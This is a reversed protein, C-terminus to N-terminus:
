VTDTQAARCRSRSKKKEPIRSDMCKWLVTYLALLLTIFLGAAVLAPVIGSRESESPDTLPTLAGDKRLQLTDAPQWTLLPNDEVRSVNALSQDM